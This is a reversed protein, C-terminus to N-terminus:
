GRRKKSYIRSNVSLQSWKRWLSSTRERLQRTRPWGTMSNVCLQIWSSGSRSLTEVKKMWEDSVKKVTNYREKLAKVQDDAEQHTTMKQAAAEAAELVKVNLLCKKDFLSIKDFLQLAEGM